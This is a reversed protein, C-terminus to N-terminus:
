RQVAFQVDIRLQPELPHNTDLLIEGLKGQESGLHNAARSGKPIRVGIATQSIAGNSIESTEGLEVKLLDPRVAIPTFKVEKRHPGHVLLKLERRAGQESDVTGFVLVGARSNWGRGAIVIDSSVRGEIPVTVAPSADLNTRILITQEFHGQPLGPKLTVKVLCGSQAYQQEKLQDSSLPEFVVEFYEATDQDALKYGLLELPEGTELYCFISVEAAATQGASVSSFILGEPVSRIAALMRGSITLEIRTRRPDNTELTATESFPGPVEKARWTVTVKTSEGPPVEANEIKLGTCRCSSGGAALKLPGRGTNSVVFDHSGEIDMDLTGFNHKESDIEVRPVLDVAMPLALSNGVPDGDWPMANYRAWGTAIGLVVGLVIAPIIALSTKM